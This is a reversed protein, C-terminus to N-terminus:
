FLVWTRVADILDHLWVYGIPRQGCLVNAVVTTGPRLDTKSKLQKLDQPSLAVTLLLSAQGDEDVDTARSVEKVTGVHATGPDSKLKFEVQLEDGQEQWAQTVHGAHHDPVRLEIVWDGSVEAVTLLAQGRRVPRSALLKSADWTLVQGSLPSKVRLEEQRRHLVELQRDLGALQVKLEEARAPLDRNREDETRSASDATLSLQVSTLQRAATQREGQVRTLEYDLESNRLEILVQGRDVYFTPQKDTSPPAADGSDVNTINLSPEADGDLSVPEAPEADFTEASPEDLAPTDAGTTSTFSLRDVIGDSPAFVTRRESPQLEGRGDIRLEGPVLVLATVGVAVLLLLCLLVPLQPRRAFWGLKGVARMVPMLPLNHYDLASRLASASHRAVIETVQRTAQDADSNAFQEVVLAGITEGPHQEEAEDITTKLPIVALRRSHAQDLYAELANEIQPPLGEDPGTYWLTIDVGIVTRVLQELLRVSNARRDVEDAGSVARIQLSRGRRVAVSVRDCGLLRKAEGAIAYAVRDLELSGHVRRNFQDFRNWLTARERLQRLELNRHFDAALEAMVEVLQLYGRQAAPSGGPQQFVELVGAITEGAPLPCTILLFGTPNPAPGSESLNGSRPPFLQPQRAEVTVSLLQRHAADVKGRDGIQAAAANIQYDLRFEGQEGRIWVAGGAAGLARVARDLLDAYFQQASVDAKACRAIEEVLGEIEQWTSGTSTASGSSTPDTSDAAATTHDPAM